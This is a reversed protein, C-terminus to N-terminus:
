EQGDSVILLLLLLLLLFVLGESGSRPRPHILPYAQERRRATLASPASSRTFTPPSASRTTWSIRCGSTIEGSRWPWWLSCTACASGCRRRRGRPPPPTRRLLIYASIRQWQTGGQLVAA